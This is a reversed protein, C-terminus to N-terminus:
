GSEELKSTHLLAHYYIKLCYLKTLIGKQAICATPYNISPSQVLRFTSTEIGTSTVPNKLQDMGELQM